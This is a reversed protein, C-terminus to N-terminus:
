DLLLLQLIAPTVSRVGPKVASQLATSGFYQIFKIQEETLADAFFFVNDIAGHFFEGFIPNKGISVESTGEGLHGAKSLPYHGGAYLKVTGAPQDYVVAVLIWYQPAAFLSGLVGGDGCFASWGSSGGRYDIDLSRDYGGNDCSLVQRIPNTSSPKVWAGMTLRPYCSPNINLPVRISSTSGNFFYAQGKEVGEVLTVNYATSHRNNGSSDKADGNFPFLALLPPLSVMKTPTLVVKDVWGCDAGQNISTDKKYVWKVFHAGAPVVLIKQQWDVQGSIQDQLSGDLYCQLQDYNKESSVKWIFSFTAPGHVHTQMWSSQTPGIEGSQAADGGYYSNGSEGFWIVDGGSYHSLLHNDLAEPYSIGSYPILTFDVGWVNGCNTSNDTSLGTTRTQPSADYWPQTATITFMTNSPLTTLAYIGRSNSHTYYTDGGGTATILVDAMPSFNEDLVRGSIIEGTGYRYINYWCSTVMNFNFSTGINPLNYWADDSGGWGLNLHHYLTGLNYGYGDCVIYHAATGAVRMLVPLYADLNPNVMVKVQSSSLGVDQHGYIMNSYMFHNVLPNKDSLIADGMSPSYHTNISIGADYTLAGIARRQLDSTTADPDLAMNSWDYPGGSGDGGRFYVTKVDFDGTTENYVLIKISKTGVGSLPWKHYRMLQALATAACGCLWHNPTYYNYCWDTGENGQNWKSQVLAPVREDSVSPIGLAFMAMNPAINQDLRRWKRQAELEPGVPIYERDEAESKILYGRVKAVRKPIDVSIIDVLPSSSSAEYEGEKIFAIIPEVLDDGSVIVVGQPELHIVYYVPLDSEDRFTQIERMQEGLVCSLPNSDLILWNQVVREVQEKTVPEGFAMSSTTLLLLLSYILKRKM